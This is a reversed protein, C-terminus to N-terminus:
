VNSWEDEVSPKALTRQASKWQSASSHCTADRGRRQRTRRPAGGQVGDCLQSRQAPASPGSAGPRVVVRWRSAPSSSRAQITRPRATTAVVDRLSRGSAVADGVLRGVQEHAQRFPVGERVLEEAIDIAVLLEDDAAARRSTANFTM